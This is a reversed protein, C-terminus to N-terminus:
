RGKTSAIQQISPDLAVGFSLTTEWGGDVDGRSVWMPIENNRIEKFDGAEQAAIHFNGIFGEM